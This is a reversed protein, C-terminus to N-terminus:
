RVLTRPEPYRNVAPIAAASSADLRASPHAPVTQGNARLCYGVGQVSVIM